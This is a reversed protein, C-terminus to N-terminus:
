RPWLASHFTVYDLQFWGENLLVLKKSSARLHHTEYQFPKYSPHKQVTYKLLFCSIVTLNLGVLSLYIVCHMKCLVLLVM